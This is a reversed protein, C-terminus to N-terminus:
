ENGDRKWSGEAGPVVANLVCQSHHNAAWFWIEVIRKPTATNIERLMRNEEAQSARKFVNDPVIRFCIFLLLVILWLINFKLICSNM